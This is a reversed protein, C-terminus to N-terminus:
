KKLISVGRWNELIIKKRLNQIRLYHYREEAILDLERLGEVM